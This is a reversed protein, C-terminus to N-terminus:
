EETNFTFVPSIDSVTLGEDNIVIVPFLAANNFVTEETNSIFSIDTYTPLEELSFSVTYLGCDTRTITATGESVPSNLLGAFQGNYTRVNSNPIEITGVPCSSGDDDSGCSTFTTSFIMLIIITLLSSNKM